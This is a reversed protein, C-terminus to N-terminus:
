TGYGGAELFAEVEDRHASMEEAKARAGAATEPLDFFKAMDAQANLYEICERLKVAYNALQEDTDQQLTCLLSEWKFIGLM